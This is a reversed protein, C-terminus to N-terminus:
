FFGAIHSNLKHNTIQQERTEVERNYRDTTSVRTNSPRALGRNSLDNRIRDRVLKGKARQNAEETLPRVKKRLEDM